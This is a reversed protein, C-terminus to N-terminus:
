NFNRDYKIVKALQLAYYLKCGICFDFLVELFACFILIMAVLIAIKFYGLLAFLTMAVTVALGLYLAFRKPSEDTFKPVTHWHHLLFKGARYFPSFRDLRAVRMMFDFLVVYLFLTSHTVSFLVTFLLVQFSIIRVLNTDVRRNSIPCSPSM